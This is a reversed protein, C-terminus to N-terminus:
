NHGLSLAGARNPMSLYIRQIVVAKVRTHLTGAFRAKGDPREKDLCTCRWHTQAPGETRVGDIENPKTMHAQARCWSEARGFTMRDLILDLDQRMAEDLHVDPWHFLLPQNKAVAAFRDFVASGTNKVIDGKHIPFYQRTHGGSTKPLWIHPESSLSALVAALRSLPIEGAGSDDLSDPLSVYGLPPWVTVPLKKASRSKKGPDAFWDPAPLPTLGRGWTPAESRLDSFDTNSAPGFCFNM